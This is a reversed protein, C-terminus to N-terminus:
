AATEKPAPLLSPDADFRISPEFPLLRGLTCLPGFMEMLHWLQWRSWGEADEQPPRYDRKKPLHKSWREFDARHHARGVDTLKVSVYNNVNFDIM